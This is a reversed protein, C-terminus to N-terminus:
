KRWKKTKVHIGLWVKSKKEHLLNRVSIDATFHRCHRCHEAHYCLSKIPVVLNDNNKDAKVAKYLVSSHLVLGCVLIMGPGPQIGQKTPSTYIIWIIITPSWFGKRALEQTMVCETLLEAESCTHPNVTRPVLGGQAASVCLTHGQDRLQSCRRNVVAFHVTDRASKHLQYKKM